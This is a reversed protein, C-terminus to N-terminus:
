FWIKKNGLLGCFLYQCAAGFFGGGWNLCFWKTNSIVQQFAFVKGYGMAYDDSWLFGARSILFFAVTMMALGVLSWTQKNFEKNM